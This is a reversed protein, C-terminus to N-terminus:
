VWENMEKWEDLMEKAKHRSLKHVVIGGQTLVYDGSKLPIRSRVMKTDEGSKVLAKEGDFRVVKKPKSICM